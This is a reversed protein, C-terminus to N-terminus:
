GKVKKVTRAKGRAVDENNKGKSETEEAQPLNRAATTERGQQVTKGYLRKVKDFQETTKAAIHPSGYAAEVGIQQCCENCEAGGAPAFREAAFFFRARQAQV